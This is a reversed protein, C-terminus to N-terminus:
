GLKQVNLKKINKVNPMCAVLALIIGLEVGNNILISEAMLSILIYVLIILSGVNRGRNYTTKFIEKFMLFCLIIGLFGFQGIYYPYGTDGLVTFEGTPGLGNIEPVYIFSYVKSPYKGSIDSAFTDFGTGFPFYKKMLQLSGEYLALRGSSTWSFVLKLKQWISAFVLVIAGVGYIYKYRSLRKNFFKIFIFVAVLALAKTRMTLIINIIVLIIPMTFRTSGQLAVYLALILVMSTALVTPHSYLFMYPHIGERVETQSMGINKFLSIVGFIFVIIVYGNLVYITKISIANTIKKDIGIERSGALAIPFKIFNIIDRIVAQYSYQYSFAVNSLLGVIILLILLVYIKANLRLIKQKIILKVIIAVLLILVVAEDWYSAFSPLPIRTLVINDTLLFFLFLNYVLKM